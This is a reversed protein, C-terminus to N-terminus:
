QKGQLILSNQYWLAKWEDETVRDSRCFPKHNYLLLGEILLAGLDYLQAEQPFSCHTKYISNCQLDLRSKILNCM